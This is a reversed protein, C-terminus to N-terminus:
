DRQLHIRIDLDDNILADGGFRQLTLKFSGRPGITGHLADGVFMSRNNKMTIYVKRGIMQMTCEIPKFARKVREIVQEQSPTLAASTRKYTKRPLCYGCNNCRWHDVCNTFIAGGDPCCRSCKGRKTSKFM